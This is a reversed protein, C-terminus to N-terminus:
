AVACRFDDHGVNAGYGLELAVNDSLYKGVQLGATVSNYDESISRTATSIMILWRHRRSVVRGLGHCNCCSQARRCHCVTNHYSLKISKM